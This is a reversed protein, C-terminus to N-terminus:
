VMAIIAVKEEQGVQALAKADDRLKREADLISIDGTIESFYLSMDELSHGKTEPLYYYLFSAVLACSTALLMFFGPWGLTDKVSLFTTTVLTAMARNIVVAVSMAKARICTPFIESSVLRSTPGIGLGYFGLYLTLGVMAVVIHANESLPFSLSIIGLSATM